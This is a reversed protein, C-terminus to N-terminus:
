NHSYSHVHYLINNLTLSTVEIADVKDWVQYLRREDSRQRCFATLMNIPDQLLNAELANSVPFLYLELPVNFYETFGDGTSFRTTLDIMRQISERTLPIHQVTLELRGLMDHMDRLNGSFHDESSYYDLWEQFLKYVSGKNGKARPQEIM